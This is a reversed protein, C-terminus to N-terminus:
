WVKKPNEFWSAVDFRIISGTGGLAEDYRISVNGKLEATKGVLSGVYTPTGGLKLDYAPAYVTGYFASNGGFDAMRPKGDTPTIGLITLAAASQSTNEIGNGGLEINGGVYLKVHMNPPIVVAGDGNGGGKTIFDGPVYLEVYTAELNVTGQNGFRGPEFTIRSNNGTLRISNLKYRAPYQKTGGKLTLQTNNKIETLVTTQNGQGTPVSPYSFNETPALVPALPQYFDDRINGHVNEPNTTVGGNTMADGYIHSGGTMILQGNTGISAWMHDGQMTGGHDRNIKESNYFGIPADMISQYRQGSSPNSPNPDPGPSRNSDASNFSDVTINHNNLKIIGETTLAADNNYVPRLWVEIQRTAMPAPGSALRLKRLVSDRSDRNVTRQGGSIGCSGTSVITFYPRTATGTGTACNTGTLVYQAGSTIAGEGGHNLSVNLTQSTALNPPTEQNLLPLLQAHTQAIALHVGSEAAVLAQQWSASQNLTSRNSLILKIATASIMALIVIAMSSILLASGSKASLTRM